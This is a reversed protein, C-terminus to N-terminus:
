QGPAAPLSSVGALAARVVAAQAPAARLVNLRLSRTLPPLSIALHLSASFPACVDQQLLEDAEAQVSLQVHADKLHDRFKEGAEEPTDFTGLNKRHVSGDQM